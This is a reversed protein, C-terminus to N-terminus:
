ENYILGMGINFMDKGHHSDSKITSDTIIERWFRAVSGDWGDNYDLKVSLDSTHMWIDHFAILGGKRVLNKYMYYDTKVDFFNHSGDIFLFDIKRRSLNTILKDKTGSLLSNGLIFKDQVGNFKIEQKHDAIDIGIMLEYDFVRRWLSTTGGREVGIEVIVKPNIKNVQSILWQLEHRHQPSRTRDMHEQIQEPTLIEAM